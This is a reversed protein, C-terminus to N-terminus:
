RPSVLSYRKAKIPIIIKISKLYSDTNVRFNQVKRRERLILGLNRFRASFSRRGGTTGGGKIAFKQVVFV